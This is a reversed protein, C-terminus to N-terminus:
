HNSSFGLQETAIREDLALVMDSKEVYSEALLNIATLVEVVAAEDDQGRAQILERFLVGLEDLYQTWVDIGTIM